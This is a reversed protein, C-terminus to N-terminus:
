STHGAYDELVKTWGGPSSIQSAFQEAKDGFRELNRHELEVRTEREGIPTFNLEVETLITPDYKFAASVQWALVLRGHPDWVLVRGWDCEVGDQGTEYWRGGERPEITVSQMETEGIHHGRPWWAGISGTFVEFARKQSVKVDISRRVPAPMILGTM